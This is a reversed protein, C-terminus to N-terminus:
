TEFCKDPSLRSKPCMRQFIEFDFSHLRRQELGTMSFISVGFHVAVLHLFMSGSFGYVM